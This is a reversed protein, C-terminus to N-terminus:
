QRGTISLTLAATDDPTAGVAPDDVAVTVDLSPNTEFDLATGAKLRLETGVIEFSAADAGSLSLNNTGLADDTVVIDAVKRSSTTDADEALSTIAGTIAVAPAENVDTIVVSLTESDDPTAGVGTDDVSVTVSYSSKSEFDLSTGAKLRLETGAIEFSAADAGSLSLVNNGLADDTVVIDAMKRASATNADEPLSTVTNALSITPAENVDTISLTLSETDDPNAGVAPDDVRVIVEYSSKAEFNLLTGAKLRLVNGAIEFSAADTGALSLSNAGLADDAIVIDAVKVAAATNTNEPLTTVVGSLSVMPAENVDTISLTLAATDDPTAGVAPDDVRVTVDYSTKTEFDLVTGAKLRLQSGAIEFSAADAGALSLNNTGLADDTIVIDAVKVASATSTNEALSTVAGALAVTPPENVDVISLTYTAADDPTAGVTPDDVQVTVTYSSKAEFNLVTGAKLRLQNALIEFAAADAGTLSRTNTGLADDTVVIDAVKTANATSADEPLTTITTTLSITPPENVDTILVTLAATDDPDAGVAPDNVAVTVDLAPNTEFDLMAGAKLQLQTGSIQFSAADAGSLSLGNTGLGDDTIVIDAVRVPSATNTNEPLTTVTNTLSVMPPENANAINLTFAATDDPTAGVTNDDVAVTVVYSSKTEFDLVTGARLRLQNGSIEFSAADAGSLSLTNTGLADDGIVIDAVRIASATNTDEPLSSVTNALSVTPADNVDTITLTYGVTDDPNAGVAPDDVRVTVTYSTKAEFDLPTGPKLRLQTGSIEFSAADAGALSLNNTGLGDDNIVITAVTIASSTNTNEPLTSTVSTLSIGPAENVNIVNISLSASDDPTSGVAPDDVNVTVSLVGNTEYDLSAGARLYLDNSFVEFLGSDPGSLSLNNSGEGDDSVTIDAVKIRSSTNTDEPLSTVVNSLSVTPPDNGSLVEVDFSSTATLSGDSVTVTVTATGINSTGGTVRVTRTSGSGGFEIGSNPVVSTNNSSATLTLLSPATELDSIIFSLDSSIQGQTVTVDSIDSITPRDNQETVTIEFMRRFTNVGGAPGNDQATVTIM